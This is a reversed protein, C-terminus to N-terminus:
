EAIEFKVQPGPKYGVLKFTDPTVEYFNKISKDFELIVGKKNYDKNNIIKQAGEFHRDYIHTHGMDYIMEGVEHGTIHAIWSQLIYYQTVNFPTGLCFDQSRADIIVVLKNNEDVYWKSNWVCPDLYMEDLSDLDWLSVVLRRSSPNNLLEQILYDVQDLYVVSQGDEEVIEPYPKSQDLHEWHMKSVPYKRCKKGLIFGYAPGITGEWKHGEPYVWEDWIHNDFRHMDAIRNSKEKWMWLILEEIPKNPRIMKAQQIPVYKGSFRMQRGIVYKAPAPSKDSKYKARVKAPDQMQGNELIDKAISQWQHDVENEVIETEIPGKKGFWNRIIGFM